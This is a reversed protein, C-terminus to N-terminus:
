EVRKPMRIGLLGNALVAVCKEPEVEAPLELICFLQLPRECDGAEPDPECPLERGSGMQEAACPIKKAEGGRIERRLGGASGKFNREESVSESVEASEEAEGSSRVPRADGRKMGAFRTAHQARLRLAAGGRHISNAWTSIQEEDLDEGENTVIPCQRGLIVLWHPDIGVDVDEGALGPLSALASLFVGGDEVNVPLNGLLEHEANLWDELEGGPVGGRGLFKQYARRAVSDYAQLLCDTMDRLPLCERRGHASRQITIFPKM